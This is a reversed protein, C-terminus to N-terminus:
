NEKKRTKGNVTKHKQTKNRKPIKEDGWEEKKIGKLTM